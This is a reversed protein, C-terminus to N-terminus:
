SSWRGRGDQYAAFHRAGTRDNFGADRRQQVIQTMGKRNRSWGWVGGRGSAAAGKGLPESAGVMRQRGTHHDVPEPGGVEADAQYGGYLIEADGACAGGM